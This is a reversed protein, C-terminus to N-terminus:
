VLRALLRDRHAVMSAIRADRGEQGYRSVPARREENIFHEVECICGKVYEKTTMLSKTKPM